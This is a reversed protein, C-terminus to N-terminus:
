CASSGWGPSWSGEGVEPRALRLGQLGVSAISALAAHEPAVGEPVRACMTAPVAVVEAHGGNSAVLDGVAFGTAAPADVVIGCNAYGLLIPTALKARVADVTALVGDTRAKGVVERVRDPQQRAESLYSARGFDALM